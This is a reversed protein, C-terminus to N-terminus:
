PAILSYHITVVCACPVTIWVGDANPAHVYMDDGMGCPAVGIYGKAFPNAGAVDFCLKFVGKNVTDLSVISYKVVYINSYPTTDIIRHNSIAATEEHFVFTTDRLAVKSSYDHVITEGDGNGKQASWTDEGTLIMSRSAVTGSVDQQGSQAFSLNTIFIIALLLAYRKM